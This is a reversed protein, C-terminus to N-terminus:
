VCECFGCIHISSSDNVLRSDASASSAAQRSRRDIWVEGPQKSKIRLQRYFAARLFVCVCGLQIWHCLFGVCVECRETAQAQEQSNQRTPQCGAALEPIHETLQCDSGLMHRRLVFAFDPPWFVTVAPPGLALDVTLSSM